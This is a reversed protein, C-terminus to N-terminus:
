KAAQGYMILDIQHNIESDTLGPRTRKLNEVLRKILVGDIEAPKVGQGLALMVNSVLIRNFRKQEVLEPPDSPRAIYQLDADRYESNTIVAGTTPRLWNIIWSRRGQLYSKTEPSMAFNALISGELKTAIAYTMGAPLDMAGIENEYAGLNGEAQQMSYGHMLLKNQAESAKGGGSGTAPGQEIVTEGDANTTVRWTSPPKGGIGYSKATGATKNVQMLEYKGTEPNLVNQSEFDASGYGDHRNLTASKINTLAASALSNDGAAKDKYVDAASEDLNGQMVNGYYEGTNGAGTLVGTFKSGGLDAPITYPQSAAAGRAIDAIQMETTFRESRQQETLPDTIDMSARNNPPGGLEPGYRTRTVPQPFTSKMYDITDGRQKAQQVLDATEQQSKAAAALNKEKVGKAADKAALFRSYNVFSDAIQGGYNNGQEVTIRGAM